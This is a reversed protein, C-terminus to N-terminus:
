ITLGEGETNTLYMMLYDYGHLEGDYGEKSRRWNRYALATEYRHHGDAILLEKQSLLEQITELVGPDVIAYLARKVGQEDIAEVCATDHTVIAEALREVTLTPDTYLTFIQCLNAGTAKMLEFRDRKPAEQTAEHPRVSSDGPGTIRVIGIIGFRTHSRKREDIYDERLLYLAPAHNRVLIGESLWSEFYAAARTYRNEGEPSDGPHAEGLILRIANHPHRQHYELCQGPSIIDYPPCVLQSIDRGQRSTDYFIGRFPLLEVM